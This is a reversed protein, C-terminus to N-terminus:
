KEIDLVKLAHDIPVLRVVDLEIAHRRVHERPSGFMSDFSKWVILLDTFHELTTAVFGLLVTLADSRVRTREVLQRRRILSDDEICDSIKLNVTM